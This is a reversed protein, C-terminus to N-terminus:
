GRRRKERMCAEYFNIAFVPNAYFHFHPFGAYLHETAVVCDWGEGSGRLAVFSSGPCESDWHHFEHAAIEGGAPCLMTDEKAKLRIYGFRTLRGVDFSKGPLFGVMPYEAIYETLYMFGGCEAICPLRDELARRVSALMSKNESLQRAYLEPYGGGLYLGHINPPLAFDSLPSFPVLEAGMETLAELSDEYYFCFANDRAVAIRVPESYKPLTAAECSVPPASRSLKVLGDLDISQEAQNALAQLKERLNEVEGATVLGLHRSELRCESIAPMFGLPFIKGDFRKKIEEALVRYVVATCQNLIVGRIQNDPCFTLFGQLSALVSLAAGGADLVLVVPSNTVRAIDYTSASTTTLGMGDYFGMVGEIISIDRDAGNKVLLYKLTNEQFFFLDLNASKAGIIKSHFMPDIYDPGCKFAGVKLKRNILAQLVACTVTTKGCGSNTGAIVIRPINKEM